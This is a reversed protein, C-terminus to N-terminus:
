TGLDCCLASETRMARDRRVVPICWSGYRGTYLCRCNECFNQESAANSAMGNCARDLGRLGCRRFRAYGSPRLPDIGQQWAELSLLFVSALKPHGHNKM